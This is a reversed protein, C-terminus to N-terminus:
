SDVGSHPLHEDGGRRLPVKGKLQSFSESNVGRSELDSLLTHLKELSHEGTATRPNELARAGRGLWDGEPHLPAMQRIIEVKVEFRDQADIRAQEIEYFSPSPTKALLRSKIANVSDGGIVEDAQYPFIHSSSAGNRQEAPDSTSNRNEGRRDDEASAASNEALVDMKILIPISNRQNKMKINERLSENKKKPSVNTGKSAKSSYFRSNSVMSNGPMCSSLGSNFRTSLFRINSPSISGTVRHLSCFKGRLSPNGKHFTM